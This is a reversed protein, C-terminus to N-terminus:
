AILNSQHLVPLITNQLDAFTAQAKFDRELAAGPTGPLGGDVRCKQLREPNYSRFLQQPDDSSPSVLGREPGTFM